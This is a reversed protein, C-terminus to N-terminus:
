NTKLYVIAKLRVRESDWVVRKFIAFIKYEQELLYVLNQNQEKPIYGLKVGSATLVKIAKKDYPNQKERELVLREGEKINQAIESINPVYNCGAIEAEFLAAGVERSPEIRMQVYHTFIEALASARDNPNALFYNQKLDYREFYDFIEKLILDLEINQRFIELFREQLGGQFPTPNKRFSERQAKPMSNLLPHFLNMLNPYFSM